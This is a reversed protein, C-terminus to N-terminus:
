KGKESLIVSVNVQTTKKTQTNYRYVTIKLVDGVGKEELLSSFDAFEKILQDDVSSVYDGPLLKESGKQYTVADDNAIYVGYAGVGMVCARIDESLSYLAQSNLIEYAQIGIQPRGTVYGHEIIETVIKKYTEVPIAFGIGEIGEGSSKANVIGVLEGNVNFLGGGSNGPNVSANHQLLTMTTGSITIQRALASVVGSTVTNSLTGLPNGIAVVTQGVKLSNEAAYVAPVLGKADIKIVALDTQSDSGVLTAKHTDGNELTVHINKVGDIVHHNTIIYGDETCIVGSGAGESVFNGYYANYSVSETTIAVVSASVKNATNVIAEGSVLEGENEWTSTQYIVTSKNGIEGDFLQSIMAVIIMASFCAFVVTFCVVLPVLVSRKKEKKKPEAPPVAEATVAPTNAEATSQRPTTASDTVSDEVSAPTAESAVEKNEDESPINMENKNENM